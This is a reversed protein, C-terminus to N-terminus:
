RGAAKEFAWKACSEIDMKHEEEFVAYELATVLGKEDQVLRYWITPHADKIMKLHKELWRLAPDDAPVPRSPKICGKIVAGTLEALQQKLRALGEEIHTLFEIFDGLFNQFKKEDDM